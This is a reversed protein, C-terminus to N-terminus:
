RGVRVRAPEPRTAVFLASLALVAWGAAATAPMTTALPALLAAGLLMGGLAAVKAPRTVAGHEVFLRISPGLRPHDLLRAARRDGAKLFCLAAAIWFVTTPLVPLLLGIGGLALLASGAIKLLPAKSM